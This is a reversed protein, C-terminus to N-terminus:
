WKRMDMELRGRSHPEAMIGTRSILNFIGGRLLLRVVEEHGYRAAWMLPTAGAGDTENV